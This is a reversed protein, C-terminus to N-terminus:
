KNVEKDTDTKIAEYMWRRGIVNKLYNYQWSICWGIHTTRTNVIVFNNGANVWQEFQAVSEILKGQKYKRAM